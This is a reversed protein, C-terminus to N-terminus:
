DSMQKTKKIIEINNKNYIYSNYWIQRFDRAFSYISGYLNSRIKNEILSINMPNKIINYYDTYINIDINNIFLEADNNNKINNLLTWCRKM